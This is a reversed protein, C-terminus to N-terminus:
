FVCKTSDQQLYLIRGSSHDHRLSKRATLFILHNAAETAQLPCYLKAGQLGQRQLGPMGSHKFSNTKTKKKKLFFVYM